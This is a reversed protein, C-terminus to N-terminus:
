PCSRHARCTPPRSARVGACLQAIREVGCPVCGTRRRTVGAPQHRIAPYAAPPPEGWAYPRSEPTQRFAWLKAISDRTDDVVLFKEDWPSQAPDAPTSTSPVKYAFDDTVVDLWDTLRHNDLLSTEYALFQTVRRETEADVSKWRSM